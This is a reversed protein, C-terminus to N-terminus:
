GLGFLPVTTSPRGPCELRFGTHLTERLGTSERVVEREVVSPRRTDHLIDLTHGDSRTRGGTGLRRISGM